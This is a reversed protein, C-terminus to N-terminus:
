VANKIQLNNKLKKNQAKLEKERKESEFKLLEIESNLREIENSHTIIKDNQAIIKNQLKECSEVLKENTQNLINLAKEIQEPTKNNRLFESVDIHEFIPIQKETDIEVVGAFLIEKFKQNYETIFENVEQYRSLDQYTIKIGKDQFYKAVRTVKILEPRQLSKVYGKVATLLEDGDFKRPRGGVSKKTTVSNNELTEVTNELVKSKIQNNYEEIYNKVKNYRNLDQYVINLGKDKLNKALKTIKIPQEKDHENNVYEEIMKILEDENFKQPRGGKNLRGM